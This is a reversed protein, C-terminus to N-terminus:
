NTPALNIEKALKVTAAIDDRAFKAFDDVSMLQIEVGQKSLNEKVSPATLAKEIEAHLKDIISRPLKAPGVIGGWFLYQASPYGAEIITPVDPLLAARKPTSVALAVLKGDKIHPLAPAIPLYYYDINGAILQTFAETPGRFPIHQVNIKAALRFQEAAMHSAAGIGASAFNLKGPNAKAAAVLEAVTKYGKQPTTVLVSPQFGFLAIPAFDRAPDYPLSKHLVVQSSLTSSNLLLKYGDPDAKAVEGGGITGGAGPRNEIVYSGNMQRFAQDLVIRAVIDNANGAAFMSIVQVNRTPWDEAVSASAGAILIAGAIGACLNRLITM